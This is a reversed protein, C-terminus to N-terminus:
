FLKNKILEKLGKYYEDKLATDNWGTKITYRNFEATYIAASGKQKLSQIRRVAQKIEDFDRFTYKLRELFGEFSGFIYRMEARIEPTVQGQLGAYTLYDQVFGEIWNLAEGKLLTIAYLVRETSSAFCQAHFTLYLNLQVLFGKLKAKEGSFPQPTEM